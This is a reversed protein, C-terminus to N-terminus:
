RHLILCVHGKVSVTELFRAQVVTYKSRGPRLIRVARLFDMISVTDRLM